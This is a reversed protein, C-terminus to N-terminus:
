RTSRKEGSKVKTPRSESEGKANNEGKAKAPLPTQHQREALMEEASIRLQASVSAGGLMRSIEDVRARHDLRKVSTVTRGHEVHKEILFHTDAYAAIQPLHTVCLVQFASGLTRLKAGVVDAVRGGIGADVEDFILGPAAISPPRGPADSFGFRTTAM